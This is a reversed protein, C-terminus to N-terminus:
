RVTFYIYTNFKHLEFYPGPTAEKLPELSVEQKMFLLSKM